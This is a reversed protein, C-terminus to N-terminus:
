LNSLAMIAKDNSKCLGKDTTYNLFCKLHIINTM